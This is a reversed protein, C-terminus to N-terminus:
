TLMPRLGRTRPWLPQGQQPGPSSTPEAVSGRYHERVTNETAAERADRTPASSGRNQGAGAPPSGLLKGTPALCGERHSIRPSGKPRRPELGPQGPTPWIAAVVFFLAPCSAASRMRFRSSFPTAICRYCEQLRRVVSCTAQGDPQAFPCSACGLGQSSSSLAGLSAGGDISRRRPPGGRRRAPASATAVGRRRCPPRWRRWRAASVALSAAVGGGRAGSVLAPSRRLRRRPGRARGRSRRRSSWCIRRGGACGLIRPCTRRASRGPCTKHRPRSTYVLSM